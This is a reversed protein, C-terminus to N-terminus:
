PKCKSKLFEICERRLDAKDKWTADDPLKKEENDFVTMYGENCQNRQIYTRIWITYRQYLAQEKSDADDGPASTLVPIAPMRTGYSPTGSGNDAPSWAPMHIVARAGLSDRKQLQEVSTNSTALYNAFENQLLENQTVQPSPTIVPPPPPPPPQRRQAQAASFILLSLVSLIITKM